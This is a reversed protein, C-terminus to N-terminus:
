LFCLVVNVWVELCHSIEFHYVVFRGVIDCLFLFLAGSLAVEPLVKKINDGYLMTVINPVVLGLFPIFGAIIIVASLTLSVCFIGIRMVAHYDMGLNSAFFEGM